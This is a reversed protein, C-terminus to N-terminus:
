FLAIGPIDRVGLKKPKGDSTDARCTGDEKFKMIIRQITKDNVGVISAIKAGKMGGECMGITTQEDAQRTAQRNLSTDM